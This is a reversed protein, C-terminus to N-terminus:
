KAPVFWDSWAVSDPFLDYATTKGGPIYKALAVSTAIVNQISTDTPYLHRGIVYPPLVGDKGEVTAYDHKSTLQAGAYQAYDNITGTTPLLYGGELTLYQNIYQAYYDLTLKLSQGLPGTFDVADYGAADMIDVTEVAQSLLDFPYGLPDVVSGDRIRDVVEGPAVVTTQYLGTISAPGYSQPSCTRPRDNNGYFNGEIQMPVSVDLLKGNDQGALANEITVNDSLRAVAAIALVGQWSQNDFRACGTNPYSTTTNTFHFNVAPLLLQGLQIANNYFAKATAVDLLGDGELLDIADVWVSVGRGIELEVRVGVSPNYVGKSTFQTFATIKTGSADVFGGNVWASIIKVAADHAATGSATDGYGANLSSLYAYLAAQLAPNTTAISWKNQELDLDTGVYPTIYSGKGVAAVVAAANSQIRGLANQVSPNTSTIMALGKARSMFVRPFAPATLHSGSLAAAPETQPAYGSGQASVRTAYLLGVCATCALLLHRM